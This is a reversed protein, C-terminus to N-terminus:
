PDGAMMEIEGGFEYTATVWFDAGFREALAESERIRGRARDLGGSMADFCAEQILAVHGIMGERGFEATVAELLPKGEAPSTSGLLETALLLTMADM